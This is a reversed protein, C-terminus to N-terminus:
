RTSSPRSHGGHHSRASPPRSHNSKAIAGCEGSDNAKVTGTNDDEDEEYWEYSDLEDQLQMCASTQEQM